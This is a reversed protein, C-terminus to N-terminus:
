ITTWGAITLQSYRSIGGAGASAITTTQGGSLPGIFLKDYGLAQAAGMKFAYMSGNSTSVTSWPYQPPGNLWTSDTQETTLRQPKGSGDANIKWIGNQNSYADENEVQFLVSSPTVARVATIAQISSTFIPMPNGWTGNTDQKIIDITSPGGDPVCGSCSHVGNGQCHSIFLTKYNPSFDVDSCAAPEPLSMVVPLDPNSAALTDDIGLM